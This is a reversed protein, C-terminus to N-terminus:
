ILLLRHNERLRPIYGGDYKRAVRVVKGNLIWYTEGWGDSSLENRQLYDEVGPVDVDMVFLWIEEFGRLSQLLSSLQVHSQSWGSFLFIIGKHPKDLSLDNWIVAPHTNLLQQISEPLM